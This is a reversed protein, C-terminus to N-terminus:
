SWPTQTHTGLGHQDCEKTDRDDAGEAKGYPLQEPGSERLLAIFGTRQLRALLTARTCKEAEFRSLFVAGAATM